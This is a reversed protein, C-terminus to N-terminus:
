LPKKKPTGSKRPFSAPTEKIKDVSIITRRMDTGPLLFKREGSVKGGLQGIARRGDAIEEIDDGKMAIFVGGVKTLPLCYESLVSTRAVARATTIDFASRFEPKRGAEEARMHIAKTRELNLEQVVTELFRVRKALSDILTLRIDPRMIQIPIGPFGAGTGVDALTVDRRGVRACYGDIEELITLSDLFHRQAIDYPTTIATLNMTQNATVLLNAYTAFRKVQETTIDFLETIKQLEFQEMIQECIM